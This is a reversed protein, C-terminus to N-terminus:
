KIQENLAKLLHLSLAYSCSLFACRAKVNTGLFIYVDYSQLCQCGVFTCFENFVDLIILFILSKVIRVFSALSSFDVNDPLNNWINVIRESFIV